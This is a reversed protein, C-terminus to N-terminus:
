SKRATRLLHLAAWGLWLLILVIALKEWLGNPLGPVLVQLWLVFTAAWALLIGLRSGKKMHPDRRWRSSLLLMGFSLWLFTAPATLQHLLRGLNEYVTGRLLESAAVVPLAVGAAMFLYSALASRYAQATVAYCAWAFGLLAIAMLYYASRVYVGGAGFFYTSLPTTIWNLDTRWFQAATCVGIFVLVAAIMLYALVRISSSNNSGTMATQRRSALLGM